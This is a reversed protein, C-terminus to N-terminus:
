NRSIDSAILSIKRGNEVAPDLWIDYGNSNISIINEGPLLKLKNLELTTTEVPINFEQLYKDNLSVQIQRYQNYGNLKIKISYEIEIDKPNIIKIDATPYMGRSKDTSNYEHWGDGLLIFPELNNSRPIKYVVVREDEYYPKKNNLINSMFNSIESINNDGISFRITTLDSRSV